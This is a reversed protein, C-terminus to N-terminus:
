SALRTLAEDRDDSIVFASNVLGLLFFIHANKNGTSCAKNCPLRELVLQRQGDPARDQESPLPLWIGRLPRSGIDPAGFYFYMATREFIEFAKAAASRSGVSHDVGSKDV